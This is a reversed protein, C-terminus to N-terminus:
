PTLARQLFAAMQGRTVRDDPCFRDNDPPNCGRTIGATALKDISSAFVSNDDDIFLNGPGPDTLGLARVLFAAMQGRTVNDDPCYRDNVPPNCGATIGATALKDIASAFVSNDDDVFLDGLGPDTLGLARVLFAAMQGRTVNDKPCFLNNAPPNCGATIGETALWEIANLFMSGATDYFRLGSTAPDGIAVVFGEGSRGIIEIPIGEITFNEGVQFVHDFEGSVAPEMTQNRYISPCPPVDSWTSCTNHDILYVEVGEANAPINDYTSQTRSGLVFFNWQQAARFVIMQVGSSTGPQLAIEVYSGDAIYVDTPDIWGAQYRNYSLTSVAADDGAAASMVDMRNDYEKDPIGANSHPWNFTHGLEHIAVGPRAKFSRVGVVAVRGSGWPAVSPDPNVTNPIWACAPDDWNGCVVGPSAFGGGLRSDIIFIGETQPGAAAVAAEKCYFDTPTSALSGGASFSLDLAGSSWFSFYTAIEGNLKDLAASMTISPNECLYVEWVDTDLSYRNVFPAKAVIGYPDTFFDVPTQSDQGSTYTWGEPRNVIPADYDDAALDTTHPSADVSPSSAPAAFDSAPLMPEAAQVPLTTVASAALTAAIALRAFRVVTPTTEVAKDKWILL